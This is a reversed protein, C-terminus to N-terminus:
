NLFILKSTVIQGLETKHRWLGWSPKKTRNKLEPNGSGMEIWKTFKGINVWIEIWKIFNQINVSIEIWKTYKGINVWIEIWKKFNRINVSIDIWKTFNRINVSIEIRKVIKSYICWSWDVNSSFKFNQM